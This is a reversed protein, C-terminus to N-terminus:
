RSTRMPDVSRKGQTKGQIIVQLIRYREGRRIHGGPLSVKKNKYHKCGGCRQGNKVSSGQQNTRGVSIYTVVNYDM